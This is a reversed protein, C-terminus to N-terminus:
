ALIVDIIVTARYYRVDWTFLKDQSSVSVLHMSDSEVQLLYGARYSMLMNMNVPTLVQLIRRLPNEDEDTLIFEESELGYEGDQGLFFFDFMVFTNLVSRM